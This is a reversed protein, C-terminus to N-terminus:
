KRVANRIVLATRIAKCLSMGRLMRALAYLVATSEAIDIRENPADEIRTVQVAIDHITMYYM